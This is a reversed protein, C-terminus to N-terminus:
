HRTRRRVVPPRSTRDCDAASARAVQQWATDSVIRLEPQDLRLWESEPRATPPTKGEADRKRTKNWVVEGRYLPRHLVEYVTSSELGSPAGQQPRPALAREANLLKAIRTYGNGAACLAFIRRIIAAQPENIRREVHGDVKVNDLRVRQGGTVHGPRRRECWRKM